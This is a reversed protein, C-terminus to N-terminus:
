TWEVKTIIMKNKADDSEIIYELTIRNNINKLECFDVNIDLKLDENKLHITCTKNLIDLILKFETNERTFKMDNLDLITEYDLVNFRIKNDEIELNNYIDEIIKEDNKLFEFSFKKLQVFVGRKKELVNYWLSYVIASMFESLYEM